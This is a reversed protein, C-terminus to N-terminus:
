GFNFSQAEQKLSFQKFYNLDSMKEVLMQNTRETDFQKLGEILINNASHIDRDQTYGCKCEYCTRYNEM